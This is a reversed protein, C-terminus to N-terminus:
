ETISVEQESTSSQNVGYALIQWSQGVGISSFILQHSFFPTRVFTKYVHFNPSQGIGTNQILDTGIPNKGLSAKGLSSTDIPINNIKADLGSITKTLTKTSNSGYYNNTMILSTQQALYGEAYVKVFSKTRHRVGYTNQPFAAISQIANGNDSSGNFLTYSESTMYSHGIVNGNIISLCGVPFIQPAEWYHGKSGPEKDENNTMNYVLMTNEQPLTIYVFNKNFAVHGDTFDYTQVDNIIPYSIDPMQPTALVGTVRGMSRILTESSVFVVYDGAKSILGQSQAAQLKSTKLPQLSWNQTATTTSTSVTGTLTLIYKWDKGADILLGNENITFATPPSDLQLLVGNGVVVSNSVLTFQTFSGGNSVYVTNSTLCGVAVYQNGGVTFGQILDNTWNTFLTSSSLPLGNNALGANQTVEPAQIILMNNLIGSTVPDPSVGLFSLSNSNSSSSSYSYINNNILLRHTSTDNYFGLQGITKTGQITISNSLLSIVNVTAGSGSGGSTNQTGTSYGTGPTLLTLAQPGGNLPGIVGSAVSAVSFNAPPAGGDAFGFASITYGTGGNLISFTTIGGAGNVGTVIITCGIGGGITVAVVDSGAYGRGPSELILSTVSNNLISNVSATGGTGGSVTITDGILYGTGGAVPSSGIAMIASAGDSVSSVVATAGSWDLLQQSKDAMLLQQIDQTTDWFPTFNAYGSSLNSQIPIWYVQGVSFTQSGQTEGGSAVYGLQLQGDNGASSPSQVRLNRVTGLHTEWDYSSLIPLGNSNSQGYLTYGARSYYRGYVNSLVNQSGKVLTNPALMTLDERNRYGQLIGKEMMAFIEFETAKLRALQKIGRISSMEKSLASPNQAKPM